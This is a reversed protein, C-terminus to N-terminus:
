EEDATITSGDPNSGSDESTGTDPTADSDIGDPGESEYVANAAAKEFHSFTRLVEADTEVGDEIRSLADYTTTDFTM